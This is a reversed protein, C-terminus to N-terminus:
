GAPVAAPEQEAAYAVCWSLEHDLPLAPARYRSHEALGLRRMVAQSRLNGITTISWVRSEGLSGFWVQLAATAAETAYGRGWAAPALRWGVEMEGAGPTGPPMPNLGAFGLFAGNELRQLAWLGYGQEDFRSEIRDVLADSAARDLTSPFYRMVEPDANMAAFPERDAAQWRRMRLRPTLLEDFRRVV